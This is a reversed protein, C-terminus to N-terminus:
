TKARSAANTAEGGCVEDHESSDGTAGGGRAADRRRRADADRARGDTRACVDRARREADDFVAVL